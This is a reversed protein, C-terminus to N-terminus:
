GDVAPNRWRTPAFPRTLAREVMELRDQGYFADGGVIYTPSGMVGRAIAWDGNASFRAAIEPAAARALLAAADHGLGEAVRSLVARDSLDADDRWHAGLLAHSMADVQPGRDGLALIMGSALSYDADHHTPRFPVVEVGRWEAWREIERGFFYDVHAQTRSRFPLSGQAEVVPSLPIPRHVLTAGHRRCIDMLHGSGLWAYASHASYVYDIIVM